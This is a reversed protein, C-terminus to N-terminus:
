SDRILPLGKYLPIEQLPFGRPFPFEEYLSIGQLPFDKIIWRWSRREVPSYSTQPGWKSSCQCFLSLPHAQSINASNSNFHYQKFDRIRHFRVGRCKVCVDLLSLGAMTTKSGLFDRHPKRGYEALGEAQAGGPPVGLIGVLITGVLITLSLSEPFDEISM